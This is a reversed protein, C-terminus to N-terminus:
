QLAPVYRRASIVHKIMSPQSITCPGSKVLLFALSHDRCGDFSAERVEITLMVHDGPHM